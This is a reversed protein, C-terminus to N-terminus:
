KYTWPKYLSYHIGVVVFIVQEAELHIKYHYYQEEFRLSITLQGPCSESDRVLFSGNIGSSLLYEAGNRSMPGHFWPFKFFSTVSAIYKTPVWGDCSNCNFKKVKVWETAPNYEPVTM